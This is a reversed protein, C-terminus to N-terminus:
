EEKKLGVILTLFYMGLLLGNGLMTNSYDIIENMSHLMSEMKIEEENHIYEYCTFYSVGRLWNTKISGNICGYEYAIAKHAKEHQWVGEFNYFIAIALFSVSIIVLLINNSKM